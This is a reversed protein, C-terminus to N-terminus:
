SHLLWQRFSTVLFYRSNWIHDEFFFLLSLLLLLLLLLLMVLM